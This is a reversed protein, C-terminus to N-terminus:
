REGGTEREEARERLGLVVVAIISWFLLNALARIAPGDVAQAWEMARGSFAAQVSGLYGLVFLTATAALLSSRVTNM